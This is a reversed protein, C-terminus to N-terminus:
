CVNVIRDLILENLGNYKQLIVSLGKEKVVYNDLKIFKDNRGMVLVKSLLVNKEEEDLFLMEGSPIAKRRNWTNSVVRCFAM